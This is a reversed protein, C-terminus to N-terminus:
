GNRTQRERFRQESQELRESWEPFRPQIDFDSILMRVVAQLTIQNTPLHKRHISVQQSTVADLHVTVAASVHLHPEIPGAQESQPHWHYVLLERERSDLLRYEYALTSVRWEPTPNVANSSIFAFQQRMDFRLGSRSGGIGPLRVPDAVPSFALSYRQDPDYGSPRVFLPINTICSVIANM